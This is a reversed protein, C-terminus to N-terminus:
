KNTYRKIITENIKTKKLKSLLKKLISTETTLLTDFRPSENSSEGCFKVNIKKIKTIIPPEKKEVLEPKLTILTKDNILNEILLKSDWM